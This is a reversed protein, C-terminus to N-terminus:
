SHTSCNGAWWGVTWNAWTLAATADGSTNSCDARKFWYRADTYDDEDAPGAAVILGEFETIIPLRCLLTHGSIELPWEAHTIAFGQLEVAAEFLSNLDLTDGSKFHGPIRRM